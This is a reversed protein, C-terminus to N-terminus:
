KELKDVGYPDVEFGHQECLFAVAKRADEVHPAAPLFRIQSSSTREISRDPTERM